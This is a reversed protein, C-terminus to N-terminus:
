TTTTERKMIVILKISDCRDTGYHQQLINYEDKGESQHGKVKKM